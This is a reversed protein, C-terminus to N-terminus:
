PAHSNFSCGSMLFHEGWWFGNATVDIPAGVEMSASAHRLAEGELPQHPQETSVGANQDATLDNHPFPLSGHLLM